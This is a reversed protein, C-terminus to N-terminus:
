PSAGFGVLSQGLVARGAADILGRAALWARAEAGDGAAWAAASGERFSYGWADMDRLCRERGFGTLTSALVLQLYCVGCEEDIDGGADTDLRERRAEDMCVFHALEHLLSHVPTDDRVYVRRGVLGAEPEGWYSGPIPAGTAVRTLQAGYAAVLREVACADLMRVPVVDPARNSSRAAATAATV